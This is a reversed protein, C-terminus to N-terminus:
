ADDSGRKDPTPAPSTEAQSAKRRADREESMRVGRGTSVAEKGFKAKAIDAAREARARKITTPDVLDAVDERAPELDSLGIGILRFRMGDMEKSLM